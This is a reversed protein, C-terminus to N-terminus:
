TQLESSKIAILRNYFTVVEHAVRKWSYLLATARASESIRQAMDLNRSLTLVAAKLQHSNGSEILIGNVNNRKM